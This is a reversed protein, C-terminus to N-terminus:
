KYTLEYGGISIDAPVPLTKNIARIHNPELKRKGHFIESVGLRSKKRIMNDCAKLGWTTEMGNKQDMSRQDISIKTFTM